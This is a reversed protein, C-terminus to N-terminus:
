GVGRATPYTTPGPPDAIVHSVFVFNDGERIMTAIFVGESSSVLKCELKSFREIERGVFRYEYGGFATNIPIKPGYGRALDQNRNVSIRMSCLTERWEPTFVRLMGVPVM